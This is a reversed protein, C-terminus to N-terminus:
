KGPQTAPVNPLLKSNLKLGAYAVRKPAKTLEKAIVLCDQLRAKGDPLGRAASQPNVPCGNGATKLTYTQGNYTWSPQHILQCRTFTVDGGAEISNYGYITSDIFQVISNQTIGNPQQGSSTSGVIVCRLFTMERGRPQVAEKGVACGTNDFFCDRVMLGVATNARFVAENDSNILTSKEVVWNKCEVKTGYGTGDGFYIGGRRTNKQHWGSILGDDAGLVQVGCGTKEEVGCNIIKAGNGWIKALGNFSGGKFTINEIMAGTAAKMVYVGGEYQNFATGDISGNRITGYCLIPRKITITEGGLDLVQDANVIYGSFDQSTPVKKGIIIDGASVMGAILMALMLAALIILSERGKRM